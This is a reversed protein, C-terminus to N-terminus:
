RAASDYQEAVGTLAERPDEDRFVTQQGVGVLAASLENFRSSVPQPRGHDVVYDRWSRLEDANPLADFEPTDYVSARVPLVGAEAFLAQSEESTYYEIFTWAAEPDDANAGIAMTQGAVATPLPEGPTRSPVPVTQLNEGIGEGSRAAGVRYSGEIAMAVTGATVSQIVDDAAMNLVEDGFAGAEHLRRLYELAQVGADDDFAATGDEDLIEGGFGWTLPIFKEVFDAGLGQDSFGIALGTQAAGSAALAGATSALEDLTAPVPLGAADLLDKRYWLLWARTEWPISMVSGGFRVGELPFILDDGIQALYDAAYDDLPLVTGADVHTALQASYVNVLDPGQGSATARVVESDIKAYNINRITVEVEDQSENFGDVVTRLAQGRPDDPSNPDLFTWLELRGDGSSTSGGGSGCAAILGLAAAAVAARRLLTARRSVSM